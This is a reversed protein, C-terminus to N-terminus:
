GIGFNVQTSADLYWSSGDCILDIYDGKVSQPTFSIVGVGQVASAIADTTENVCGFIINQGVGQTEVRYSATAVLGNIFRFRMGVKVPPLTVTFGGTNSFIFTKGADNLGLNTAATLITSEKCSEIAYSLGGFRNSSIESVVIAGGGSSGIIASTTKGLPSSFDNGILKVEPTVTTSFNIGIGYTAGALGVDKFKNYLFEIKGSGYVILGNGNTEGLEDFTNDNFRIDYCDLDGSLWGVTVPEDSTKFTNGTVNVGSLGYVWLPRQATNTVVNDRVTIGSLPAFENINAAQIQKLYIGGECSDITNGEILIGTAPNTVAEYNTPIYMSVAANTGGIDSFHNGKISIDKLEFYGADQTNPEMDIAGPMTPATCRLFNCDYIDLDTISLVAIANQCWKIEGDFECNKISVKRNFWGGNGARIVVAVGEWRSFNCRLFKIDTGGQIVCLHHGEDVVGGTPDSYGRMYLDTVSCNKINNAPNNDTGFFKFMMSTATGARRLVVSEQGTGYIHTGSVMNIESVSYRGEPVFVKLGLAAAAEICEQFAVSNDTNTTAEDGVAGYDVVSLYDGTQRFYRTGDAAVIVRGANSGSADEPTTTDNLDAVFVGAQSGYLEVKLHPVTPSAIARIEDATQYGVSNRVGNTLNLATVDEDGYSYIGVPTYRVLVGEKNETRQSFQSAAYINVPVNNVVPIGNLTRIPQVLPINLAKDSYISIPSETPDLNAVGFYLYGNDLPTGDNDYYYNFPPLARLTTM